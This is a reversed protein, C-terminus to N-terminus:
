PEDGDLSAVAQAIEEPVDVEAPWAHDPFYRNVLALVDDRTTVDLGKGLHALDTLDREAGREARAVAKMAFLYEPKAVMVRLGPNGNRPYSGVSRQDSPSAERSTYISVGENLWGEDLGMRRAAHNRAKIVEGHNERIVADVDKTVRRWAILFLTAAGGYICIEGMVKRDRLYEGMLDFAKEITERDLSSEVPMPVGDFPYPRAM